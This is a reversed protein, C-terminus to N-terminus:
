AHGAADTSAGNSASAPVVPGGTKVVGGDEATPAPASALAAPPTEVVEGKIAQKQRKGMTHRAARTARARAAKKVKESPDLPRRKRPSLGFDNLTDVASGFMVLLVQRLGDVIEKTQAHQVREESVVKLWAARAASAANTASARAQLISVIQKPTFTKGAIHITVKSLHKEVGAILKQEGAMQSTKNSSSM